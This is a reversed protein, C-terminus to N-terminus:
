VQSGWDHPTRVFCRRTYMAKPTGTMDPVLDWHRRVVSKNRLDEVQLIFGHDRPICAMQVMGWFSWIKLPAVEVM